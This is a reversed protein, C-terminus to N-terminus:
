VSEVILTIAEGFYRGNSNLGDAQLQMTIDRRLLGNMPGNLLRAEGVGTLPFQKWNGPYTAIILAARQAEDNGMVFDGDEVLLDFDAGLMVDVM